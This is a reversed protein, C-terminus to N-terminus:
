VNIHLIIQPYQKHCSDDPKFKINVNMDNVIFQPRNNLILYAKLHSLKLTYFLNHSM